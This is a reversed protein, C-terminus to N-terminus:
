HTSHGSAKSPERIFMMAQLTGNAIGYCQECVYGIPQLPAERVLLIDLPVGDDTQLKIMVGASLPGNNLPNSLVHLGTHIDYAGGIDLTGKKGDLIIKVPVSAAQYPVLVIENKTGSGSCGALLLAGLAIGAQKHRCWSSKTSM